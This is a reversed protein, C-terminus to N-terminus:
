PSPFAPTPDAPMQTAKDLPWWVPYVLAAAGKPGREQRTVTQNLLMAGQKYVAAAAAREGTLTVWREGFKKLAEGLTRNVDADPTQYIKGRERVCELHATTFEKLTTADGFEFSLDAAKETIAVLNDAIAARLGRRDQVFKKRVDDATQKSGTRPVGSLLLKEQEGLVALDKTLAQHHYQIRNRLHGAAAKWNGLYVAENCAKLSEQDPILLQNHKEQVGTCGVVCQKANYYDAHDPKLQQLEATARHIFEQMRQNEGRMGKIGADAREQRYELDKKRAEIWGPTATLTVTLSTSAQVGGAEGAITLTVPDARQPGVPVALRNQAAGGTLDLFMQASYVPYPKYDSGALAVGNGQWPVYGHWTRSGMKVTLHAGPYDFGQDKVGLRLDLEMGLENSSFAQPGIKVQSSVPRVYVAPGGPTCVPSVLEQGVPKGQNYWQSVVRFDLPSGTWEPRERLDPPLQVQLYTRDKAVRAGSSSGPSRITEAHSWSHDGIKVFQTSATPKAEITHTLYKYGPADLEAIAPDTLLLVTDRLGGRQTRRSELRVKGDRKPRLKVTVVLPEDTPFKPGNAVVQEEPAYDPHTVRVRLNCNTVSFPFAANRAAVFAAQGQLTTIVTKGPLQVPVTSLAEVSADQVPCGSELDRVEVVLDHLRYVKISNWDLIRFYRYVKYGKSAPMLDPAGERVSEATDKTYISVEVDTRMTADTGVTRTKVSKVLGYHAPYASDIEKYYAIIDGAQPPGPIPEVIFGNKPLSSTDQEVPFKIPVAFEKVKLLNYAPETRVAYTGRLLRALALGGCIQRWTPNNSHIDYGHIVTNESVRTLRGLFVSTMGKYITEEEDLKYQRETRQQDAPRNRDEFAPRSWYANDDAETVERVSFEQSVTGKELLFTIAKGEPTNQKEPGAGDAKGSLLSIALVIGVTTAIKCVYM